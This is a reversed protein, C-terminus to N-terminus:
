VKYLYNKWETLIKSIFISEDWTMNPYNCYNNKQEINDSALKITNAYVSYNSRINKVYRNENTILEISENKNPLWPNHVIIKGKTGQIMTPKTLKKTISINLKAEFFNNFKLQLYAEDDTGRFNNKVEAKILNYLIEKNEKQLLRAILLAFSVPYCGIDNIAGGGFNKNFLRHGLKFKLIPNVRFGFSSEVSLIEGIEKRSVQNIIEITQPHSRYAINELFFVKSQNLQLFIKELELENLAIPKECLIAKKAKASKIILDAHKDNLTAIYIADIEQCNILDEYTNFQFNKEIDFKDGFISNKNKSLSSIAILKANKIEKIANAFSNAARGLGLVGWRVM